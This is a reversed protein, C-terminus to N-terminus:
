NRNSLQAVQKAFSKKLKFAIAFWVEKTAFFKHIIFM